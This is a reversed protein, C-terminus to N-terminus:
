GSIVANSVRHRHVLRVHGPVRSSGSQAGSQAKGSRATRALSQRCAQDRLDAIRAQALGYNLTHTPNM